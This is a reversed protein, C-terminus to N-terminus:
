KMSYAFHIELIRSKKLKEGLAPLSCARERESRLLM